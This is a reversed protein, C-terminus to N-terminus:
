NVWTGSSYGKFRRAPQGTLRNLANRPQDYHRAYPSLVVIATHWDTRPCVRSRVSM